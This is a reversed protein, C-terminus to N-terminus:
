DKALRGEEAKHKFQLAILTAKMPRLLGFALVLTMPAWLLVHVWLPPGFKFEVMLALGLELFGLVMIAFVAPGDGTDVFKFSLGCAACQDRLNLTLMGEFLAGQGCRPCRCALGASLPAISPHRVNM